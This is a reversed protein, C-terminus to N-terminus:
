LGIISWCSWIEGRERREEQQAWWSQREQMLELESQPQHGKEEAQMGVVLRRVGTVCGFMQGNRSSRKSSRVADRPQPQEVDVRIETITVPKAVM